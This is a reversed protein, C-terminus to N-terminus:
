SARGARTLAEVSDRCIKFREEHSLAAFKEAHDTRTECRAGAAAVLFVRMMVWTALGM